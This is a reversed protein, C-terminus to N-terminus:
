LRYKFITRFLRRLEEIRLPYVIEYIVKLFEMIEAERVGVVRSEKEVRVGFEFVDLAQVLEDLGFRSAHGLFAFVLILQRKIQVGNDSDTSLRSVKIMRRIQRLPIIPM